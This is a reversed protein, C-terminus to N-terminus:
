FAFIGGFQTLGLITGVIRVLWYAAFIIAFGLLANTVITRAAQITQPIGSSVMWLFGGYILYLLLFIGAIPFIYNLLASIIVGLPQGRFDQRFGLANYLTNWNIPPITSGPGFTPSTSSIQFSTSCNSTGTAAEVNYISAFPCNLNFSADGSSNTTVSSSSQTCQTPIHRITYTTNSDGNLSFQINTNIQYPPSSLITLSCSMSIPTWECLNYGPPCAGQPPHTMCNAVYGSQPTCDDPTQCCAVPTPTVPSSTCIGRSSLSTDCIESPSCNYHDVPHGSWCLNSNLICGNIAACYRHGVDCCYRPSPTATPPPPACTVCPINQQASCGPPNFSYNACHFFNPCYGSICTVSSPDVFCSPASYICSFTGILQAKSYSTKLAYISLILFIIIIIKNSLKM